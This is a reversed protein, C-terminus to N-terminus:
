GGGRLRARAADMARMKKAVRRVYAVWSDADFYSRWGEHPCPQTAYFLDLARDRRSEAVARSVGLDEIMAESSANGSPGQSVSELWTAIADVTEERSAVISRAVINALEETTMGSILRM